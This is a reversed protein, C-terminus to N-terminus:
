ITCFRQVGLHGKTVNGGPEVQHLHVRVHHGAKPGAKLLPLPHVVAQHGSVLHLMLELMMVNSMQCSMTMQHVVAQNCRVLHLMLELMIVKPHTMTAVSLTSQANIGVNPLM